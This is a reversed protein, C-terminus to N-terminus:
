QKEQNTLYGKTNQFDRVSFVVNKFLEPNDIVLKLKIAVYEPSYLEDNNYYDKFKQVSNFDNKKTERISQQMKTKVVGPAISYVKIHHQKKLAIETNLTETYLDLGSKSACYTSWGDVARKGAGSSINIIKIPLKKDAFENIFKNTLISPSVLNVNYLNAIDQNNQNGIHAIPEIIGANNILIYSNCNEYHKFKFDILNEPKSLDFNVHTYNAHTITKTRSIGVVKYNNSSLLLLATAKGIGSSAGTIYAVKM